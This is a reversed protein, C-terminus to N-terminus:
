KKLKILIKNLNEKSILNKQKIFIPRVQLIFLKNNKNIAFEIDLSDNKFIKILKKAIFIIRKFNKNKAEYFKNDIFNFTDTNIKGSTVLTTDKGKSYNIVFYPLKSQLDRTTCVGSMKVDHVM